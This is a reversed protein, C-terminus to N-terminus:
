LKSYRILRLLLAQRASSSSSRSPSFDVPLEFRSGKQQEQEDQQQARAGGRRTSLHSPLAVKFGAVDVKTRGLISSVTERFSCSSVNSM